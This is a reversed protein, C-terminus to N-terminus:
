KGAPPPVFQERYEADLRRRSSEALTALPVGIEGTPTAVVAVRDTGAGSFGTLIGQDVIGNQRRLEVPDGIRFLPESEDQQSRSDQEATAPPLPAPAEEKAPWLAIAAALILIALGIGLLIASRLAPSGNGNARTETQPNDM